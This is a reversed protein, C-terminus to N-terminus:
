VSTPEKVIASAPCIASCVGCGVCVAEDIRAKARERDWVLGPCRFLRVCYRGCGCEEGLCRGQEVRVRFPPRADRPRLLACERRFVFVRVGEGDRQISELVKGTAKEIDFPDLVEVEIGLAQCLQAIDVVPAEEGTADRGVGPHPQFGTMATASNDLVVLTFNSRNYKANILAPIAAHYFTSDGCVAVVPQDFGFQTLKGLGSAIGTGSGMASATKTIQFGGGGRRDLAYCGIDGTVFGDRGDIRLANKISWLSARHPCGPCWITEREIVLSRTMDQARAFYVTDRPQYEVNLLYALARIV